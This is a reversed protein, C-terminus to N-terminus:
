PAINPPSTPSHTAPVLFIRSSHSSCMSSSGDAASLHTMTSPIMPSVTLDLSQNRIISHAQSQAPHREEVLLEHPKQRGRCHQRQQVGYHAASTWMATSLSEVAVVSSTPIKTRATPPHTTISIPYKETPVIYASRMAYNEQELCSKIIKYVLEKTRWCYKLVVKRENRIEM